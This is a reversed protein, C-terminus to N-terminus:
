EALEGPLSAAFNDQFFDQRKNAFLVVQRIIGFASCNAADTGAPDTRPRNGPFPGVLEALHEAMHSTKCIDAAAMDIRRQNSFGFAFGNSDEQLFTLVVEVVQVSVPRQRIFLHRCCELKEPVIVLKDHAGFAVVAFVASRNQGFREPPKPSVIFVILGLEDPLEQLLRSLFFASHVFCIGHISLM